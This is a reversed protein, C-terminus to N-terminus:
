GAAKKMEDSNFISIRDKGTRKAHRLALNANEKLESRDENPLSHAIGISIKLQIEDTGNVIFTQAKLIAQFAKAFEAAMGLTFNPLVVVIEDGGEQYAFGRNGLTALLLRQFPPIIDRDVVSESYKENLSKFGDLDMFLSAIGLPGSATAIDGKI